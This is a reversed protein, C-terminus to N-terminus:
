SSKIARGPQGSDCGCNKACGKDTRFSRRLTFGLYVLAAIFLAILLIEQLM